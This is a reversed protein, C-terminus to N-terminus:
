LDDGHALITQCRPCREPLKSENQYQASWPCSPCRAWGTSGDWMQRTPSVVIRRRGMIRDEHLRKAISM